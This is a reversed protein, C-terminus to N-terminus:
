CSVYNWKGSLLYGGDCREVKGVPAFIDAILGGTSFVEDMRKKSLFPVWSNHLAYFYTLWAASLNYYGVTKVMDTFTPFDIQPYGYEKPLILRHIGEEMIVNVVNQSITANADAQLAEKEALQGIRKASEMLKSYIKEDQVMVTM